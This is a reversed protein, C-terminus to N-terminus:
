GHCCFQNVCFIVAFDGFEALPNQAASCNGAVLRQPEDVEFGGGVNQIQQRPGVADAFLELAVFDMKAGDDVGLGARARLIAAEARLRRMVLGARRFVSENIGFGHGFGGLLRIFIADGGDAEDGRPFPQVFARHEIFDAGAHTFHLGGAFRPGSTESPMM